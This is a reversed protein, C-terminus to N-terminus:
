ITRLGQLLNPPLPLRYHRCAVIVVPWWSFKVATIEKFHPSQDCEGFVQALFDEKSKEVCVHTLVAGHFDGNTYFHDESSEDPFWLQFNCHDLHEKKLLGVQNYTEEDELLAACLAIMPFLVSGTTVSKRYEDDGSKPHSLLDSYSELNCPYYGHTQYAFRSRHLIESVWKKLYEHNNIDLALLLVAIFIDIAQEDKIPLLLVPNNSILEKLASVYMETEQQLQQKTDAEDESCRTAGWYAWIGGTALRGLLDFLKLNVDLSCSALVASSLAHLKNVHKLVNTLLFAYCIKMYASFISSFATAVAEALKGKITCYAKVIKWAHLLTVESSLYAAEMNKADRAWSFMIWLCISMQRLVTVDEAKKHRNVSSLSHILEAFHQSSAEPEDLLALSKRLRSRAHEPLLDERLFNSQILAALRDGNWEKFSINNSTNRQFFGTLSTRVQEQFDGGICVCIVIDKGRHEAPLRHPIYSDIIENLSPRLAQISDNAWDKRTLDGPKISFLYVREPGGDLVGVAGVDVGDQRTGRGPRSFVNLGLQSLLDPLIADLEGREKLSSLYQKLILKM